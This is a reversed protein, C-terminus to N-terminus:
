RSLTAIAQGESVMEGEAVLIAAVIGSAPALVPLEMKMAEVIIIEDGEAVRGGVVAAVRAVVGTVESRVPIDAM